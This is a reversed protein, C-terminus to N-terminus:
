GIRQMRASGVGSPCILSEAAQPKATFRTRPLPPPPRPWCVAVVAVLTKFPRAAAHAAELGAGVLGRRAFRLAWLRRAARRVAGVTVLIGGCFPVSGKTPFPNRSCYGMKISVAKFNQRHEIASSFCAQTM